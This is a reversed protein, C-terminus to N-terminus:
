FLKFDVGYEPGFGPVYGPKLENFLPPGANSQYYWPKMFSLRVGAERILRLREDEADTSEGFPSDYPLKHISVEEIIGGGELVLSPDTRAKLFTLITDGSIRARISSRFIKLNPCFYPQDRKPTLLGICSDNFPNELDTPVVSIM